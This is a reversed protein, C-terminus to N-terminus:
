AGGGILFLFPAVALSSDLRDLVGGHGPLIKGSDKVGFTRKYFSEFLDGLQAIITLFLVILIQLYSLPIGLLKAILVTTIAGGLTGGIAGEVTKKPSVAPILKRKGFFKGTLYAFTDTAWVLSLLLLFFKKNLCGISTIGILIYLFMLAVAFFNKSIEKEDILETAFLFLVATVPFVPLLHPFNVGISYLLSFLILGFFYKEEGLSGSIKLSESVCAFGLLYVLIQYIEKSSFYLLLAYVIVLLSGLLREKM